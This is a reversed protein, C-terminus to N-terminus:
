NFNVSWPPRCQAKRRRHFVRKTKKCFTM